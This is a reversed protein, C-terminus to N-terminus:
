KYEPKAKIVAKQSEFLGWCTYITLEEKDAQSVLDIRDPSVFDKIYAIYTYIKNYTTKIIIKQGL